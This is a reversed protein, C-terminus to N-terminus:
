SISRLTATCSSNKNPAAEPIQEFCFAAQKHLEQRAKEGFM